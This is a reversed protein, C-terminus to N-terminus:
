EISFLKAGKEVANGELVNIEKIIGSAPSKLDNEMKMAELILISEGQSIKDGAKKKIKLIMGPMPAKMETHHHSSVNAQEILKMARHELSSRAIANVQINNVLLEYSEKNKDVLDVQYQKNNLKLVYSNNKIEILEYDIVSDNISVKNDSLIRVQLETNNINIVFESM